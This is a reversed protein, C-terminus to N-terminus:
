SIGTVIMGRARLAESDYQWNRDGAPTDEYGSIGRRLEETRWVRTPADRLRALVSMMREAPSM